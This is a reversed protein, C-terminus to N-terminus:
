FSSARNPKLLSTANVQLCSRRGCACPLLADASLHSDGPEWPNMVASFTPLGCHQSMTARSVPVAGDAVHWVSPLCLGWEKDKPNRLLKQLQSVVALEKHYLQFKWSPLCLDTCCTPLRSTEGPGASATQVSRAVRPPSLPGALPGM